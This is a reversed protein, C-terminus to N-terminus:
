WGLGVGCWLLGIMSICLFFLNFGMWVQYESIFRAGGRHNQAINVCWPLMSYVAFLLYVNTFTKTKEQAIFYIAICVAFFQFVLFAINWDQWCGM